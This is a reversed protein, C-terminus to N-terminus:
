NVTRGACGADQQQEVSRGDRFDDFQAGLLEGFM